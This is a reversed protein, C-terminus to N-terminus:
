TSFCASVIYRLLRDEPLISHLLATFVIGCGHNRKEFCIPRVKGKKGEMFSEPKLLSYLWYFFHRGDTDVLYEKSSPMPNPITNAGLRSLDYHYERVLFCENM